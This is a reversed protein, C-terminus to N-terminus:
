ILGTYKIIKESAKFHNISSEKQWDIYREKKLIKDLLIRFSEIEEKEEILCGMNNEEVYKANFYQHNDVSNELPVLVMGKNLSTVESISIAGARSIVFDCWAIERYPNDFFDQIVLEHFNSSNYNKIVAESKDQGSQHHISLSGKYHNLVKPVMDNLSSSGLSGGTVYIKIHKDSNMRDDTQKARIPNGVLIFKEKQSDKFRILPLGLFCKTSFPLLLRNVTGLVTNQEHLYLKKGLIISALGVPFTVYGGFCIVVQPKFIIFKKIVVLLSVAQSWISSIRGFFSKGRFGKASLEILNVESLNNQREIGRNTGFWIVQHGTKTLDQMLRLAPFIHGGTGGAAICVKM